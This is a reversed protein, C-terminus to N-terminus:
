VERVHLYNLELDRTALREDILEIFIAGGFTAVIQLIADMKLFICVIQDLHM